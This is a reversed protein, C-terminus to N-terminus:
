VMDAWYKTFLARDVTPRLFDIWRGARTAPGYYGDAQLSLGRNMNKLPDGPPFAALFEALRQEFPRVGHDWTGWTLVGLARSLEHHEPADVIKSSDFAFESSAKRRMDRVKMSTIYIKV